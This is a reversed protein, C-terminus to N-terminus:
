YDKTIVRTKDVFVNNDFEMYMIVNVSNLVPARFEINAPLTGNGKREQPKGHCLSAFTDFGFICYGSKYDARAVDLGNHVDIQM